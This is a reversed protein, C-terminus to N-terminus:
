IKRDIHIASFTSEIRDGASTQLPVDDELSFTKDGNDAYLVVYYQTDPMTERLLLVRGDTYTGADFRRAGLANGLTGTLDEHVVAWGDQSLSLNEILVQNGFLQDAVSISNDSTSVISHTQNDDEEMTSTTTALENDIQIDVVPADVQSGVVFWMVIAGAIFGVIFALVVNGQPKQQVDTKPVDM